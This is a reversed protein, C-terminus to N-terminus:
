ATEALSHALPQYRRALQLVAQVSAETPGLGTRWRAEISVPVLGEPVDLEVLDGNELDRAVSLYPMLAVGRGHGALRRLAALSGTVMSVHTRATLDQGFRDVLMQSTCGPEAILFEADLLM